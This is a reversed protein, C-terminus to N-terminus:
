TLRTLAWRLSEVPVPALGCCVAERMRKCQASVGAHGEGEEAAASEKLPWFMVLRASRTRGEEWAKPLDPCTVNSM